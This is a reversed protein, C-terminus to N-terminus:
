KPPEMKAIEGIANVLVDLERLSTYVNPSIRVIHINEHNSVTTHLKYLEYLKSSVDDPKWGDIAFTGIACSYEPKMSTYLKVKPIQAAKEAWYNKLFRLREEKRKGGILDYFDLANGIAMDAAFSRTGLEEFKRINEGDPEYASLLAWVKKIKEKKVFMFGTGFPACLWKHLSTAFYDCDLDRIKYEIHAFSHSADLVVECGRKHALDALKRAPLVQGTWNMMHTVHVIKTKPTIAKDFKELFVEDSEVPLDLDVWNLKIGDRKERQRWANTMHPYDYKTLVVEDGAKLNLGFIITNLGETTNRNFAIEEADCGAMEALRKRLPERGQDLVRWMYYSPAENCFQYFRIHADQVQKPQPSVGGNNLDVINASTTYQERIMAWFEEDQAVTAPDMPAVRELHKQLEAARLPDLFDLMSFGATAVASRRLFDKRTIM